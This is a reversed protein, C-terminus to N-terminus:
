ALTACCRHYAARGSTKTTIYNAAVVRGGVSGANERMAAGFCFDDVGGDATITTL